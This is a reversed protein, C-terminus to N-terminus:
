RNGCTQLVNKELNTKEIYSAYVIKIVCIQRIIEFPFICFTHIFPLIIHTKSELYEVAKQPSSFMCRYIVMFDFM